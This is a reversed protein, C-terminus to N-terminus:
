RKLDQNSFNCGMKILSVLTIFGKNWANNHLAHIINNHRSEYVAYKPANGTTAIWVRMKALYFHQSIFVVMKYSPWVGPIVDLTFMCISM